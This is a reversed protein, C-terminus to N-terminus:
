ETACWDDDCELSHELWDYASLVREEADKQRPTMAAYKIEDCRGLLDGKSPIADLGQGTVTGTATDLIEADEGNTVVTLPIQYDELLRSAALAPRERTVLSGPGYRVAIVSRGNLNVVLDVMSLVKGGEPHMEIKRKVSLDEKAYGKKEVLFRAIKQRYREDDTDTIERGTVYDTTKGLIRKHGM